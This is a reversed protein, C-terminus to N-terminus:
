HLAVQYRHRAPHLQASLPRLASSFVGFHSALLTSFFPAHLSCVSVRVCMLVAIGHALRPCSEVGCSEVLHLPSLFKPHM